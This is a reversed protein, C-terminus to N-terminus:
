FISKSVPDLGLTANPMWSLLRDFRFVKEKGFSSIASQSRVFVMGSFSTAAALSDVETVLRVLYDSSLEGWFSGWSEKYSRDWGVPTSLQDASDDRRPWLDGSGIENRFHCRSGQDGVCLPESVSCLSQTSHPFVLTPWSNQNSSNLQAPEKYFYKGNPDNFPEHPQYHPHGGIGLCATLVASFILHNM